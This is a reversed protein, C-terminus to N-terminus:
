TAGGLFASLRDILAKSPRDVFIGRGDKPEALGMGRLFLYFVGGFHRDYDYSELNRSLFGHLATSYILYQLYYAHCRMEAALGEADFDSPNRNLQNSKWDVVYFRGSQEFVLDISGTMFGLPIKTEKNQLEHIFTSDRSPTTWLEDLIAAMEGLRRIGDRHLSFNFELESRRASLLIDKLQFPGHGADLDSHLVRRVMQHVAQRQLTLRIKKEEPLEDAPRKCIRHLDLTDDVVKAIAEDPAQFDLLEFIKHWCTGLKAGGPISLIPDIEIPSEPPLTPTNTFPDRDAVESAQDSPKTGMHPTLSSFSARGQEKDVNPLALPAPWEDGSDAHKAPLPDHSSPPNAAAIRSSAPNRDRWCSLLHTLSYTERKIKPHVVEVAVIRNVARTLGVYALRINEQLHETLARNKGSKSQTDLDLVLRNLSDHYKLVVDNRHMADAKHRWLTPIFVIPFQLGKSKFLTMIQVAPDDDALRVRTADNADADDRDSQDLQSTFWRLLAVPGLKQSRATQHALEVLHVLSSMRRTGDPQSAMFARIGLERSLSQFAMIFSHQQWLLGANRFLEIWDELTRSSEPTPSPNENSLSPSEEAALDNQNFRALDTEPCPIFSASLAGRLASARGPSLMAKMVLALQPAEESDFVSGTAQRVANVGCQLLEQQIEAAEAHTRVLIAIDSPRIGRPPTEPFRLSDNSLMRAIERAVDSAIQHALPSNASISGESPYTWVKLPQPDPAGDILITKEPTTGQAKLTGPYAINDGALFTSGPLDDKFLDNVASVLHQESRFNTELSHRQDEPVGEKAKFYTFLDGSRFGYIAQKPDGVFLVPTPAAELSPASFIEDFIGFQVPDTDQFEDILAARFETRLVEKLRPGSEPDLLVKRVNFLMADYTLASRDRIRDRFQRAIEQAIAARSGLCEHEKAQTAVNKLCARFTDAEGVTPLSLATQVVFSLSACFSEEPADASAPYEKLWPAFFHAHSVVHDSLPQINVPNGKATPRLQGNGIWQAKGRLDGINEWATACLDTLTKFEPGPKLTSGHVIADPHQAVQQVLKFLSDLDDFPQSAATKESYAHNRWWDQCTELLIRAHDPLLEADPDHGCEFAYRELVRNCFGHITFIAAGDFDMLARQIRRRLTADGNAPNERAKAMAHVIREDHTDTPRQLAHRADVLVKRLRDRLERTAAETFTVVLIQQVALDLELVLRLYANQINYTKGTGASAEVLTRNDPNWDSFVINSFEAM